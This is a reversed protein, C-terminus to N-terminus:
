KHFVVSLKPLSKLIERKPWFINGDGDRTSFAVGRFRRAVFDSTAKMWPKARTAALHIPLTQTSRIQVVASAFLYLLRFRLLTSQKKLGASVSEKAAEFVKPATDFSNM